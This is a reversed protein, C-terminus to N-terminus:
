KAAVPKRSALAQQAIKVLEDFVHPTHIALESLSKRNLTVNALKMGNIFRSYNIGRQECAASVRVIWLARYNRKKTKRDRFAFQRGRVLTEFAFKVLKGRKGWFGKVDRM